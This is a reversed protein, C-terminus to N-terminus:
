SASHGAFARLQLTTSDCFNTPINNNNVDHVGVWVRPRLELELRLCIDTRTPLLAGCVCWMVVDCRQEQTNHIIGLARSSTLLSRMTRRGHEDTSVTRNVAAHCSLRHSRARSMFSKARRRCTAVVLKATNRNAHCRFASASTYVVYIAPRM